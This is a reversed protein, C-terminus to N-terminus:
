LYNKKNSTVNCKEGESENKRRTSKLPGWLALHVHDQKCGHMWWQWNRFLIDMKEKFVPGIMRLPVITWPMKQKLWIMLEYWFQHLFGQTECCKRLDSLRGPTACFRRFRNLGRMLDHLRETMSLCCRRFIYFREYLWAVKPWAVCGWTFDHLLKSSYLWKFFKGANHCSHLYVDKLAMCVRMMWLWTNLLRRWWDSDTWNLQLCPYVM